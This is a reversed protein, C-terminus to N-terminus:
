GDGGERNIWRGQLLDTHIKQSVRGFSALLPYNHVEGAVGPTAQSGARVEKM